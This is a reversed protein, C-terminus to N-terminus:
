WRVSSGLALVFGDGPGYEKFSKHKLDIIRVKGSIIYCTEVNDRDLVDFSGM